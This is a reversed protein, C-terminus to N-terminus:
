RVAAEVARIVLRQEAASVRDIDLCLTVPLSVAWGKVRVEVLAGAGVLRRAALQPGFVIQDSRAALEMAVAVTDCEHGRRRANPPLPCGDDLAVWQGDVVGAATVFPVHALAEPTVPGAEALRQALSPNAYLGSLVVGVERVQWRKPLRPQGVTLALDFLGDTALAAIQSPAQQTTRLRAPGLAEALPGACAAVLYSPAALTLVRQETGQGELLLSEVGAIVQELSPLLLQARDTLAVGKASRLLLETGLQRELRWVAKSVQSTTVGQERAAAALSGHRRVSLFTVLDSIRVEDHLPRAPM